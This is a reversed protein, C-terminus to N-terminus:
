ALRALSNAMSIRLFESTGIWMPALPEILEFQIPLPQLPPAVVTLFMRVMMPLSTSKRM